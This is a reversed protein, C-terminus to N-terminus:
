KCYINANSFNSLYKPNLNNYLLAEKIKYIKEKLWIERKEEITDDKSTVVKKYFSKLLHKNTLLDLNFGQGELIQIEESIKKKLEQTSSTNLLLNDPQSAQRNLNLFSNVLNPIARSEPSISQNMSNLFNMM